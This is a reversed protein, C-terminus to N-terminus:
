FLDRIQGSLGLAKDAAAQQVAAMSQGVTAEVLAASETTAAASSMVRSLYYEIAEQRAAADPQPFAVQIDLRGPRLLARDLQQPVDTAAVFGFRRGSRAFFGDLYQLLLSLIREHIGGTESAMDRAPALMEIHDIFLVCNGMSECVTLVSQMVREAEGVRASVIDAAQIPLLNLAPWVMQQERDKWVHSLMEAFLTKGNGSPGHLLIGLINSRQRGPLQGSGETMHDLLARRVMRHAERLKPGFLTYNSCSRRCRWWRLAGVQRVFAPPPIDYRTLEPEQWGCLHGELQADRATDRTDWITMPQSDMHLCDSLPDHTNQSCENAVTGTLLGEQTRDRDLPSQGCVQRVCDGNSPTKKRAAASISFSCEYPAPLAEGARDRQILFGGERTSKATGRGVARADMDCQQSDAASSGKQASMDGVNKCSACRLKLFRVLTRLESYTYGPTMDALMDVQGLLRLFQRRQHWDPLHVAQSCTFGELPVSATVVLAGPGTSLSDLTGLWRMESLLVTWLCRKLVCENSVLCADAMLTQETKSIPAESATASFTTDRQHLYLADTRDATSVLWDIDEILLVDISSRHLLRQLEVVARNTSEPLLLVSAHVAHLKWLRKQAARRVRTRKGVGAPGYLLLSRDTLARESRSRISSELWTVLQEDLADHHIWQDSKPLFSQEVGESRCNGAASLTSPSRTQERVGSVSMRFALGGVGNDSLNVPIWTVV